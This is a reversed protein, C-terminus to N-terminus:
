PFNVYYKKCHRTSCKNGYFNSVTAQMCDISRVLSILRSGNLWEYLRIALGEEQKGPSDDTFYRYKLLGKVPMCSIDIYAIFISLVLQIYM